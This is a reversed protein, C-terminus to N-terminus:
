YKELILSNAEADMKVHFHKLFSMGLLGDRGMPSESAIAAKVNKVEMSGVKVSKLTIATDTTISGEALEAHITGESDEDKLGLKDAVGKSIYILSAGTDTLLKAEVKGNLLTRVVGFRGDVFKIKIRGRAKKALEVEKEYQELRYKKLEERRAKESEQVSRDRASVGTSLKLWEEKQMEDATSEGINKIRDRSISYVFGGGHKSVVVAEETEHVIEGVIQKGNKLEITAAFFNSCLFLFFLTLILLILPRVGKRFDLFPDSGKNM